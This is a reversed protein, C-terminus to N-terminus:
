ITIAFYDREIHELSLNNIVDGITYTDGDSLNLKEVANKIDQRIRKENHDYPFDIVNSVADTLEDIIVVLM